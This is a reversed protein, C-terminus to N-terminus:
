EVEKSMILATKHLKSCGILCSHLLHFVITANTIQSSYTYCSCHIACLINRLFIFLASYKM